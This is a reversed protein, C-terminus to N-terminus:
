KKNYTKFAQEDCEQVYGMSLAVFRMGDKGNEEWAVARTPGSMNVAMGYRIHYKQGDRPSVLFNDTDQGLGAADKEDQPLSQLYEKFAQENPPPKNKLRAYRQYFMFLKELRVKAVPDTTAAQKSSSSCGAQGVLFVVALVGVAGVKGGIVLTKSWAEQASPQGGGSHSLRQRGM